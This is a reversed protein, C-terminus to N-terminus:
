TAIDTLRDLSASWGRAHRDCDDSTAFREHVLVLRTGGPATEFSVSVESEHGRAASADEWAWTFVLRHPPEVIRFIGSMAVATGDPRLLRTRWRGGTTVELDDVVAELGDPAWWTVLQAPDTWLTFLVEPPAAILRELRLTTENPGADMM